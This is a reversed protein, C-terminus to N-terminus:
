GYTASQQPLPSFLVFFAQCLRGLMQQTRCPSFGGRAQTLPFVDVSKSIHDHVQCSGLGLRRDLSGWSHHHLSWPDKSKKFGTLRCPQCKNTVCACQLNKIHLTLYLCSTPLGVLGVTMMELAGKAILLSAAPSIEALM